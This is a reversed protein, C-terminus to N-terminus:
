AFLRGQVGDPQHRIETQEWRTMYVWVQDSWNWLPMWVETYGNRQGVYHVRVHGM